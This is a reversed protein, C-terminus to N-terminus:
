FKKWEVQKAVLLRNNVDEWNVVNWWNKVYEKKDTQYQLYYAHEWMDLVLLPITDAIQFLQHKEFTQIALKGSRPSWLLIAWGVGEVSDAADSFLKKFKDWSGFDKEIQRKIEKIPRKTSKPTMNNWFITHLYHGSGHFAQERLWHKLTDKDTKKNYIQEEAKNLGEVYSQHHEDHHLRMIERSIYPELADYAYPLPPLQHKGYPISSESDANKLMNTIKKGKSELLRVEDGSVEHKKLSVHIDNLFEEIQEMWEKRSSEPINAALLSEKVRDGWERLRKLYNLQNEM